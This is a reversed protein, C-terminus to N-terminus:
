VLAPLIEGPPALALELLEQDLLPDLVDHGPRVVGLGQALTLAEPAGHARLEPAPGLRLLEKLGLFAYPVEYVVVVVEPWVLADVVRHRRVAKKPGLVLDALGKFRSPSFVLQGQGQVLRGPLGHEQDALDAPLGQGQVAFSSLQYQLGWVAVALFDCGRVQSHGLGV